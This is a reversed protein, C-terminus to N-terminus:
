YGLGLRLMFATGLDLNDQPNYRYVIQREFAVGLDFFWTRQGARMRETPGWEWGGRFRIDNYDFQDERGDDRDIAWSGGGYEGELYWWVDNTGVTALYRAYRPEPFFLDIKTAPNPRCFVGFAPLLKIDVRDYYIIGLKFTTTPTLRVVGLGRGRFLIADTRALEWESFSGVSFLLEAGVIQEPNSRWSFDLSAGYTSGPLDAGTSAAPGAFTNVSFTPAIYLPQQSWLFSPWAFALAVDTMNIEVGDVAEDDYIWTHRFRLRQVIRTPNFDPFAPMTGLPTGNIGGPFLTGPMNSPYISNASDYPAAPYSQPYSPPPYVTGGVTPAPLVSGSVSPPPAVPVATPSALGGFNILPPPQTALGGYAPAGPASYPTAPAFMGGSSPGFVTGTPLGGTAPAGLTTPAQAPVAYPDFTSFPPPGSSIPASAPPVTNFPTTTITPQGVPAAVGGPVTGVQANAISGLLQTTITGVLFVCAVSWRVVARGSRKRQQPRRRATKTRSAILSSNM